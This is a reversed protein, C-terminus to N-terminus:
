CVVTLLARSLTTALPHICSKEGRLVRSPAGEGGEGDRYKKELNGRAVLGGAEANETADGLVYFEGDRDDV